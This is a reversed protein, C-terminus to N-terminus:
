TAFKGNEKLNQFIGRKLITMGKIVHGDGDLIGTFDEGFGEFSVGELDIDDTLVYAATFNDSIQLFDEATSIRFPDESTGAGHLAAFSSMPVLTALLVMSLNRLRINNKTKM